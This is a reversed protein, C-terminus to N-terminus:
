DFSDINNNDRLVLILSVIIKDMTVQVVREETNIKTSQSSLFAVRRFSTTLTLNRDEFSIVFHM